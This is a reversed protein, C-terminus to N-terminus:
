FKVFRQTGKTNTEVIYMGAELGKTEFSTANEITGVVQGNMNYVVGSIAESFNLAKGTTVPNPYIKFESAKVTEALGILSGNIQIFGVTGSVEYGVMLLDYGNPSEAAPIFKMIEPAVDGTITGNDVERNNYYTLFTPAKPDTIDYVLIASQRELGIFAFTYGDIQGITIAEPEIGKDDSRGDMEGEDENFLAPEETATTQEFADGSDWVLNGYEDFISFSRAGYSYIQEYIGDGDYDGTAETTKLRGLVSDEQLADANPYYLTDLDLNKVRTEESYGDYDRSDGENATVIYNMGNVSYSAIGDPMRMGLTPHNQIHIGGDENSADFGYNNDFSVIGLVTNDTIGAGALGFDNDNIIAVKNGPLLAIGEIKDSGQYGVSPLNTVKNKHVPLVGSEVIEDASLMELPKGEMSNDAVLTTNTNIKWMADNGSTPHQVCVYFEGPNNTPILGTPEAGAVGLSAFRAMSDAVGDDNKDWTIWIDGPANDELIYLNGRSDSTLNDPNNLNAGVPAGVAFDLTNPTVFETVMATKEDILHFAYVIKESTTALYLTNGILELDEPRGYPTANVEDAAARGGRNSFDFPNANTLAVGNEDTLPIWTAKGTRTASSNTVGDWNEAADGAYTDVKLVYTQGESLDGVITPVFKYLSGSNNEDVFYMNGAADFKIGEHSVSPINSRWEVVPTTGAAMLPNMWEFMRGNGSWEEATVVTGHPTWVAPDLAGFDDNNLNWNAPNSEFVGTNNGQMATVIDGSGHEYRALGAGQGEEFPIYVYKNSPDLGIMDWAGFTAAFDPDMAATNRDLVLTQTFGAPLEFPSVTENTTGASATLYTVDSEKKGDNRSVTSGLINTAKNLDIEFVYKKGVEVTPGESDREIVLLKGNGTYVADGIKDVRSTAFGAYKNRELLYVYEACPMGTKANIGLIRIVDSNDKTVSSPNYLPSQIFAYIIENENDYALAEFGRNAWRKNYVEPLTEDGYTGYAVPSTGLRSAGKSVFRNILNGNADFHYIAPRYEDCMWFTGDNAMLIGEFDGGLEDYPLQHYTEGNANETFDVNTYATSADTYTVPVEDFGPINGKGTIPTTGDQRFLLITDMLAMAGTSPNLSFKVVRAQYNPLKFPRLNQNSAPTVGAKAVADANPGRDPIAYFVQSNSTSEAESFFLGSFGGLSVAPQGGDYVPTGLTPWNSIAANLTHLEISPTGAMHDKYDLPLLDLLTKTGLDIVAFANNEQLNVYAKTGDETVAIYEPELDQAVSSLGNNGFIRLGKNKLSAKKDNYATFDVSTVNANSLGASLDILSVSGEPDITYDDNPEGENAVLLMSGDPTFTIMDPLAGVTISTLYAGDINFFVVSGNDTKVNAQVSVAVLTDFIAVSNPGGGYPALDVTSILTTNYPDAVNIITLTNAGASTFYGRKSPAHFAVVEAADPTGTSYSSLHNLDAQQASLNWAAGVGIVLLLKKFM